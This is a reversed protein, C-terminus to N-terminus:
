GAEPSALLVDWVARAKGELEARTGDNEIVHDARARKEDSSLQAAEISEFEEDTWGRRQRVRDRRTSVAADVVVIADCDRDLGSEFLLPVEHVVIVAGEGEAESTRAARLRRVEAHVIAELRRRESADASVIRRMADRDLSGDEHLVAEGWSERIAALGPTGPAVAERALDDADIRRAGWREFMRGVTSKGAALTGTLGIRM